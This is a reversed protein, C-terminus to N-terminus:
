SIKSFAAANGGAQLFRTGNGADPVLCAPRTGFWAIRNRQVWDYFPDGIADPVVRGIVALWRWPARMTRGAALVGAWRTYAVGDALVMFTDFAAADRGYHRYLAQPVADQIAAFRSIGGPDRAIMWQVGTSCLVCLGDFIVIPNGDDFAPVSTDHRYSYPSAIM